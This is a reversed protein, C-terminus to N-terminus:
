SKSSDNIVELHESSYTLVRGDEWLIKTDKNGTYIGTEIVLGTFNEGYDVIPKVLDGVKMTLDDLFISFLHVM